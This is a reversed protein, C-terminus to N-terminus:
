VSTTQAPQPAPLTAPPVSFSPRWWLLQPLWTTVDWHGTRSFNKTQSYESSAYQVTHIWIYIHTHTM